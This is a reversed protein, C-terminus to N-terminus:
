EADGDAGAGATGQDTCDEVSLVFDLTIPGYGLTGDSNMLTARLSNYGDPVEVSSLDLVVGNIAGDACALSPELPPLPETTPYDCWLPVRADSPNLEVVVYGCQVADGCGYPPRFTWNEAIVDVGLRRDCGLVVSPPGTPEPEDPLEAAQGGQGAAAEAPAGASGESEEPLLCTNPLEIAEANRPRLASFYACVRGPPATPTTDDEGCAAIALLSLSLVFRFKV